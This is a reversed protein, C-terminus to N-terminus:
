SDLALRLRSLLESRSEAGLRRRIRAVHHEVTRPSIFMAEGIEWYTRGDLVLRAVQRERASLGSQDRLPTAATSEDAPRRALESGTSSASRSESSHGPHLDRACALLRALDKREPALAAAHGALRAGEWSQGVAALDRAASEVRAVDFDRALVTIWARGAAAFATAMASHPAARVLAAAHPGLDAPRDALIAAQIAAWHLPVSWLPPEDLGALVSWAEAKHFELREADRLRAAAIMLEGLPLLSYLDISVHMVSERARQWAHVLAPADDARRALGVELAALLVDDRATLPGNALALDIAVRADAPRDAHMAVWGRLLLLRSRNAAGGQRGDIAGTLVSEALALDGTHMAVIATIAAPAEPLMVVEGAATLMDSSHILAPLTRTTRADLSDRIGQALLGVAVNVMTPSRHQSAVSLMADAGARDGSAFMAVAARPASSGLREPGLWRYIESARSVMGRHAWVAAAVDAARPADEADADILILDTLRAAQDLQGEAAAAQALRAALKTEPAGAAVSDRYSAGARAPDTALLRDGIQELVRAVRPEALGTRALDAAVGELSDGSAVISDVLEYQLPRMVWDPTHELLARALLPLVRGDPGVLGATRTRAFLTRLRAGHQELEAPMRKRPDFGIAIALLVERLPPDWESMDRDLEELTQETVLQAADPDIAGLTRAILWPSGSTAGLLRDLHEPAVPRGHEAHVHAALQERDVSGLSVPMRRRDIAHLLRRLAAPHHRVGHTVVVDDPRRDIMMSLRTLSADSMTEANDILLVVPAAPRDDVAEVLTRRVIWGAARYEDEIRDLLASKGSGADGCISALLRGRGASGVEAILADADRGFRLSRRSTESVVSSM